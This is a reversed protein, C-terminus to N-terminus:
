HPGVVCVKKGEPKKSSYRTKSQLLLSFRQSFCDTSYISDSRTILLVCMERVIINSCCRVVYIIRREEYKMFILVKKKEFCDKKERWM